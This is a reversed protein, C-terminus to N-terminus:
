VSYNSRRLLAPLARVPDLQLAILWPIEQTKANQYHWVKWIIEMVLQRKAEFGKSLKINQGESRHKCPGWQILNFSALGEDSWASTGNAKSNRANKCKSLAPSRLHDWLLSGNQKSDKSLNFLKVRVSHQYPGSRILSFHLKSQSEKCKQMKIIGSEQLSTM